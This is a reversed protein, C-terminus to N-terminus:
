VKKVLQEAVDTLREEESDLAYLFSEASETFDDSFGFRELMGEVASLAVALYAAKEQLTALNTITKSEQERKHAEKITKLTAM